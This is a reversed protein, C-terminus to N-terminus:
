RLFANPDVADSGKRVEFHLHPGTAKGTAGVSGIVDGRKVTKGKKVAFGSLHGYYTCLEKGHDIVVLNGYGNKFYGCQSVAGDAAARVPTGRPAAIDIGSHFTGKKGTVPDVRYGFRSTVKGTAPVSLEPGSMGEGADRASEAGAPPRNKTIYAGFVWGEDGQKRKVLVWPYSRGSIREADETKALLEVQEGHDLTGTSEASSSGAARLRVGTGSIYAYLPEAAKRESHVHEITEIATISEVRLPSSLRVGTEKETKGNIGALFRELRSLIEQRAKADDKKQSDLMVTNERIQESVNGPYGPILVATLFALILAITTGTSSLTKM